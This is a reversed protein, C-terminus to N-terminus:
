EFDMSLGMSFFVIGALFFVVHPATVWLKLSLPLPELEDGYRSAIKPGYRPIRRFAFFAFVHLSRLWRGIPGGGCYVRVNDILKGSTGIRREIEVIRPFAVTVIFIVSLLGIPLSTVLAYEWFTVASNKM